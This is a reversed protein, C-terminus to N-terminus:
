FRRLTYRIERDFFNNTKFRRTLFGSSNCCPVIVSSVEFIHFFVELNLIM